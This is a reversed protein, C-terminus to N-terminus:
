QSQSGRIPISRSLNSSTDANFRMAIATQSVIYLRRSAPVSALLYPYEDCCVLVWRRAASFTGFDIFFLFDEAEKPGSSYWTALMQVIHM